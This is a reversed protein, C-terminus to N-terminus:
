SMSSSLALVKIVTCMCQIQIWHRGEGRRHEGGNLGILINYNLFLYNNSVTAYLEGKASMAIYKGTVKGKIMVEATEISEM